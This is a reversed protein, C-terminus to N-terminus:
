AWKLLSPQMSRNAEQRTPRFVMRLMQGALDLGAKGSTILYLMGGGAIAGLV